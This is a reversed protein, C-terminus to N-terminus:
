LEVQNFNKDERWGYNFPRVINCVIDKCLTMYEKVQYENPLKDATNGEFSYQIGELTDCICCSGYDVFTMLYSYESIDGSQEHFLYIM